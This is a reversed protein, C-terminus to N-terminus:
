ENSLTVAIRTEAPLAWLNYLGACRLSPPWGALRDWMGSACKRHLDPGSWESHGDRLSCALEDQLSKPLGTPPYGRVTYKMLIKQPTTKLSAFYHYDPSARDRASILASATLLFRSRERVREAGPERAATYGLRVMGVHHSCITGWDAQYMEVERFGKMAIETTVRYMYEGNPKEVRELVAHPFRSRVTEFHKRAIRDFEEGSADVAIDVDAGPTEAFGFEEGDPWRVVGRQPGASAVTPIETEGSANQAIRVRLELETEAEARTYTPPYYSALFGAHDPYRSRTEPRLVASMAGSGTLYSKALDLSHLYGGLYTDLNEAAEAPPSLFDEPGWDAVEAFAYAAALDFVFAETLPIRAGRPEIARAEELYLRELATSSGQPKMVPGSRCIDPSKLGVITEPHALLLEFTRTALDIDCNQAALKAIERLSGILVESCAPLPRHTAKKPERAYSRMALTLRDEPDDAGGGYLTWNGNKPPPIEVTEADGWWEDAEQQLHGFLDSVVLKARVPTWAAVISLGELQAVTTRHLSAERRVLECLRFAPDGALPPACVLQPDDVRDRDEPTDFVVQAKLEAAPVVSLCNGCVGFSVIEVPVWTARLCGESAFAVLVLAPGHEAAVARGGEAALDALSNGPAARFCDPYNPAADSAM